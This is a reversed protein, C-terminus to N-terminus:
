VDYQKPIEGHMAGSEDETLPVYGAQNEAKRARKLSPWVAMGVYILVTLGTLVDCLINLVVFASVYKSYSEFLLLANLIFRTFFVVAMGASAGLFIVANRQSEQSGESSKTFKVAAILAAVLLTAFILVTGSLVITSLDPVFHDRATSTYVGMTITYATAIVTLSACVIGLILGARKRHPFHTSLIAKVLVFTFVAFLAAFLVSGMSELIEVAAESVNPHDPSVGVDQFGTVRLTWTTLRLVAAALLVSMMVFQFKFAFFHRTVLGCIMAVLVALTVLGFIIVCVIWRTEGLQPLSFKAGLQVLAAIMSLFASGLTRVSTSGFRVHSGDFTTLHFKKTYTSIYRLLRHGSWDVRQLCLGSPSLSGCMTTTMNRKWVNHCNRLSSVHCGSLVFLSAFEAQSFSDKSIDLMAHFNSADDTVGDAARRRNLRQNLRGLIERRRKERETDTEESPSAVRKGGGGVANETERPFVEAVFAEADEETRQGAVAILLGAVLLLRLLM